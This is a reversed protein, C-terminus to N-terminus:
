HPESPPSGLGGSDSFAINRPTVDLLYVELRKFARLIREVQEWRSGFQERKELEWEEWVSTPFYPPSGIYAGAFDLVFPKSVISMEIAWLDEDCSLFTPINSGCVQTVGHYTLLEYVDRERCYPEFHRHFKVASRAPQTLRQAVLVCGHVGFGLGSSLNVTYRRAYAEVKQLLQEDIPEV